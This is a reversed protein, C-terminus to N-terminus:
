PTSPTANVTVAVNAQQVEQRKDSFAMMEAETSFCMRSYPDLAVCYAGNNLEGIEELPMPNGYYYHQPNLVRYLEISALTVVVILMIGAILTTLRILASNHVSPKQM